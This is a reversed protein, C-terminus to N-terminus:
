IRLDIQRDGGLDLDEYHFEQIKKESVVTKLILYDFLSILSERIEEFHNEFQEKSIEDKVFFTISLDKQILFFDTRVEGIRDMDLLLSIKFGGQSGNQKKKQCYLKLQAKKQNEKLPLVFSFMQFPDPLEHRIIARSQQNSIDALLMDLTGKFSSLSKADIIKFISDPTELYEKLMFLIPKLDQTLIKKIEPSRALERTLDSEPRDALQSIIDALKKEFFLGAEELRSKLLPLWKEMNRSLDISEFHADLTALARSIHEPPLQSQPLKLIQEVVQRIDSQIRDFLEFSLIKLQGSGEKSGDVARSGSDILQLQLKGETGTVKVVLDAGAKVPFQIEALVRFKGLDVLARHNDKVDIVKLRFVDGPKIVKQVWTSRNLQPDFIAKILSSIDM